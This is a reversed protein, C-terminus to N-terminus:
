LLQFDAFKVTTDGPVQSTTSIVQDTRSFYTHKTVIIKSNISHIFVEEGTSLMEGNSPLTYVVVNTTQHILWNGLKNTPVGLIHWKIKNNLMQTREKLLINGETLNAPSLTSTKM